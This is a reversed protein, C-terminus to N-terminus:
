NPSMTTLDEGRSDTSDLDTFSKRKKREWVWAISIFCCGKERKKGKREERSSFVYADKKGSVDDGCIPKREEWWGEDKAQETEVLLLAEIKEGKRGEKRKEGKRTHREKKKRSCGKVKPTKERRKRRVM